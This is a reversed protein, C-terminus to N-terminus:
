HLSELHFFEVANGCLMSDKEEQPVGFFIEEIVRRSNPWDTIGHPFDSAWMVRNVGIEHRVRVGFPNKTFGWFCHERVYESPLRELLGIDLLRAMWYRDRRYKDDLQELFHPIWGIENEAWFVRLKPFRDFVGAMIMQVTNLAGRLGDTALKRVVDDASGMKTGESIDRKYRFNPGGPAGGGFGLNVHITVPMDLDLSGAWFRDDEPTPYTKGSPYTNIWVGKLGIRACHEMEAVADDVGTAPIVGMAILRDRNVSCYDEGLFDNWARVVAKYAADDQIGRWLHPGSAGGFLVEADVGDRDQERLRQQSDGAGPSGQYVGGVPSYEEYRKGCLSLGPVQLPRNEILLADGGGALKVTRPARDRYKAPVRPTWREPVVELHSDASIVCYKMAM